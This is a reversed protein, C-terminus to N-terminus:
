LININNIDTLKVTIKALKLENKYKDIKEIYGYVKYILGAEYYTIEVEKDLYIAESIAYNLDTLQDSSLLPKSVKQKNQYLEDIKERFTNLADFPQWKIFGRDVYM